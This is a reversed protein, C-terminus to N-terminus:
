LGPLDPSEAAVVVNQDADYDVLGAADLKPLHAHHLSVHVREVAEAPVTERSDASGGHERAAVDRALAEVDVPLRAAALSRLVRRRRGHALADFLDDHTRGVDHERSRNGTRRSESRPTDTM